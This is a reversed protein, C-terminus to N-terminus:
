QYSQQNKLMNSSFRMELEILSHSIKQIGGAFECCCLWSFVYLNAHGYDVVKFFQLSILVYAAFFICSSPDGGVRVRGYLPRTPNQGQLPSYPGAFVRMRAYNICHNHILSVINASFTIIFEKKLYLLLFFTCFKPVM